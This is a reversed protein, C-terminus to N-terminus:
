EGAEFNGGARLLFVSVRWRKQLAGAQKKGGTGGDEGRRGWGWRASGRAKLEQATATGRGAAPDKSSRQRCHERGTGRDRKWGRDLIWGSMASRAPHKGQAWEWVLLSQPGEQIQDHHGRSERWPEKGLTYNYIQTIVQNIDGEAVPSHNGHHYIRKPSWLLEPVWCWGSM